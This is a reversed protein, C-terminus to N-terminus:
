SGQQIFKSCASLTDEDYVSDVKVGQRILYAQLLYTCGRLKPHENTKEAIAKFKNFALHESMTSRGHESVHDKFLASVPAMDCSLSDESWERGLMLCEEARETDTWRRDDGDPIFIMFIVLFFPVVVAFASFIVVFTPTYFIKNLDITM